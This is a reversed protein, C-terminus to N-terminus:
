LLEWLAQEVERMVNGWYGLRSQRFIRMSDYLTTTQGTQGWRWCSDFRNLLWVPKGMAGALHAVATDVSIVLDLCQIAAATDRWSKLYPAADFIPCDDPTPVQLSVWGVPIEILRRVLPDPLSRRQEVPNYSAGRCVLGVRPGPLSAFRTEWDLEIIPPIYPARHMTAFDLQWIKGVDMLAIYCDSTPVQDDLVVDLWPYTTQLLSRAEPREIMTLKRCRARLDPLFRWFQLSDGMGQEACVLLHKRKIPQGEWRPITLTPRVRQNFQDWGEHFRGLSLLILSRSYHAESDDPAIALAFDIERLANEWQGTRFYVYSLHKRLFVSPTEHAISKQLYDIAIDDEGLLAHVVGLYGQLPLHPDGTKAIRLADLALVADDDKNRLMLAVGLNAWTASRPDSSLSTRLIKIVHDYEDQIVLNAGEEASSFTKSTTMTMM